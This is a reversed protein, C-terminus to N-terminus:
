TMNSVQSDRIVQIQQYKYDTVTSSDREISTEDSKQDDVQDFEEIAIQLKYGTVGLKM